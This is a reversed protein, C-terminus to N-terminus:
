QQDNACKHFTSFHMCVCAGHEHCSVVDKNCPIRM